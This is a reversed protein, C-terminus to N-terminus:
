KKVISYIVILKKVQSLLVWGLSTSFVEGIHNKVQYCKRYSSSRPELQKLKNEILKGIQNEIYTNNQM